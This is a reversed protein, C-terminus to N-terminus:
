CFWTAQDHTGIRFRAGFNPSGSVIHISGHCVSHYTRSRRWRDWGCPCCQTAFYKFTRFQKLSFTPSFFKTVWRTPNDTSSDMEISSPTPARSLHLLSSIKGKFSGTIKHIRNTKSPRESSMIIIPIRSLFDCDSLPATRTQEWAEWPLSHIWAIVSCVIGHCM